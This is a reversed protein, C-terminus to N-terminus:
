LLIICAILIVHIALFIYNLKFKVKQTKHHAYHMGIVAGFPAILGSILLTNETIRWKNHKAKYKDINYLMFSVVNLVVYVILIPLMYDIMQIAVM